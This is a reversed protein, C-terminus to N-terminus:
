IPYHPRARQAPEPQPNTKFAASFTLKQSILELYSARVPLSIATVMECRGDHQYLYQFCEQEGVLWFASPICWHVKELYKM